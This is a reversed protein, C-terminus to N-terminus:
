PSPKGFILSQPQQELSEATRQLAKSARGLEQLATGLEYRLESEPGISRRSDGLLANTQELTQRLSASAQRIEGLTANLASPQPPHRSRDRSLGVLRCAHRESLHHQEIM